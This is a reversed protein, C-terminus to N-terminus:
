GIDVSAADKGSSIAVDHARDDRILTAGLMQALCLELENPSKAGSRHKGLLHLRAKGLTLLNFM